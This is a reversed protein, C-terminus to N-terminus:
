LPMMVSHVLIPEHAAPELKRIQPDIRHMGLVVGVEEGPGDFTQRLDRHECPQGLPQGVALHNLGMHLPELSALEVASDIHVAGPSLALPFLGLHFLSPRENQRPPAAM